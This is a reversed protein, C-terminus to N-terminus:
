TELVLCAVARAAAARDAPVVPDAHHDWYTAGAAEDLDSLQWGDRSYRYVTAAKTRWEARGVIRELDARAFQRFWGHDEALGYPVTVLLKGGPALVRTLEALARDVEEAPDASRGGPVGYATTDMGVHELTSAAVVTDFSGDPYPLDRVDGYAYVVGLEPFSEPEPALTVIQLDDCRPLFRELVHRHNLTSGADLVHGAPERALLWPYEIAREDLGIGYRRPLRGGQRFRELLRRDDLAREVFRRHRARYEATWPAPKM